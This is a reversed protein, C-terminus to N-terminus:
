RRWIMYIAVVIAMVLVLIILLPTYQVGPETTTKSATITTTNTSTEVTEITTPTTTNQITTTIPKEIKFTSCKRDVLTNNKNYLEICWPYEINYESIQESFSLDISAPTKSINVIFTKNVSYGHLVVTWLGTDYLINISWNYTVINDIYNFTANLWAIYSTCITINVPKMLPYHDYQNGYVQDQIPYPTDGIGDSGAENQYLGSYQDTGNYDSWYNGGILYGHDWTNISKYSYVQQKNNIFANNYITNNSIETFSIGYNNNEIINRYITNNCSTHYIGFFVIGFDNNRIINNYVTNNSSDELGIGAISSKEIINNYIANNRSHYLYIGFSRAKKIFNKYITVNSLRDLSIGNGNNELVNNSVLGHSVNILYIGSYRSGYIRCNRIIFYVTTHSIYVGCEHGTADIEWGEIIYPDELTGSGAVVGNEPIFAEDGIIEIPKHLRLTNNSISDELSYVINIFMIHNLFLTFIISIALLKYLVHKLSYDGRNRYLKLAM